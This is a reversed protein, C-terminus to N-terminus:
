STLEGLSIINAKCTPVYKVNSIEMVKDNHLKLRVRGIGEIKQKLSNGVNIFGFVGKTHLTDFLDRSTCIHVDAASDLIWSFKSEVVATNLLLLEDDNVVNVSPKGKLEKLSKLDEKFKPCKVQIHGM